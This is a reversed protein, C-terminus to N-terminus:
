TEDTDGGDTLLEVDTSAEEALFSPTEEAAEELDEAMWRIDYRHCMPRTGM